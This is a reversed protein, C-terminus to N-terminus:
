QDRRRRRQQLRLLHAAEEPTDVTFLFGYTRFAQNPTPKCNFTVSHNWRVVRMTVYPNLKVTEGGVVSTCRDAPAGGAVAEECADKAAFYRANTKKAWYPSDLSHDAHRHGLLIVDITGTKRLADHVRDVM